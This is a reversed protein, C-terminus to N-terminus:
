RRASILSWPTTTTRIRSRRSWSMPLERSSAPSPSTTPANPITAVEWEAAESLRSMAKAGKTIADFDQLTCGKVVKKSYDLKLRMLEARSRPPQAVGRVALVVTSLAFLVLCLVVRNMMSTNMLMKMGRISAKIVIRM